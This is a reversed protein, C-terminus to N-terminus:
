VALAPVLLFLARNAGRAALAVPLRSQPNDLADHIVAAKAADFVAVVVLAQRLAPLTLTLRRPPPKPSDVIPLVLRSREDLAPHDPFLSCVHGDPGVGLLVIDVHPPAGSARILRKEYEAAAATLDGADAPMRHIRAPDVHVRSLLREDAIRYNSDPHDPPVAREDCWFVDVDRWRVRAPVLAPCFAEAASGGPLALSLRGLEAFRQEVQAVFVRSLTDIDGYVVEPPPVRPETM